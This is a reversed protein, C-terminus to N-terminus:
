QEGRYDHTCINKIKDIMTSYAFRKQSSEMYFFADEVAKTIYSTIEDINNEDFEKINLKDKGHRARGIEDWLDLIKNQVGYYNLDYKNM